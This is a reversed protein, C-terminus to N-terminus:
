KISPIEFLCDLKSLKFDLPIIVQQIKSVFLSYPIGTSLQVVIPIAIEDHYWNLPHAMKDTYQEINNNESDVYTNGDGLLQNGIAHYANSLGNTATSKMIYHTTAEQMTEVSEPIHSDPTISMNNLLMEFQDSYAVKRMVANLANSSFNDRLDYIIKKLIPIYGEGGGGLEWLFRLHDFKAVEGPLNLM